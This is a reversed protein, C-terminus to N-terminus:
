HTILSDPVPRTQIPLPELTLLIGQKTTLYQQYFTEPGANIVSILADSGAAAEIEYCMWLGVNKRADTQESESVTRRVDRRVVAFLDELYARDGTLAPALPSNEVTMGFSSLYTSVGYVFVDRLPHQTSHLNNSSGDSDSSVADEVVPKILAFRLTTTVEDLNSWAAANLNVTLVHEDQFHALPASPDGATPVLRRMQFYEMNPLYTSAMPVFWSNADSVFSDIFQLRENILARVETTLVGNIAFASPSLASSDLAVFTERTLSVGDDSAYEPLLKCGACIWLSAVLALSFTMFNTRAKTTMLAKYHGSVSAAIM